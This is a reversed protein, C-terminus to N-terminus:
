VLESLTWEQNQRSPSPVSTEKNGSPSPCHNDSPIRKRQGGLSKEVASEYLSVLNNDRVMMMMEKLM